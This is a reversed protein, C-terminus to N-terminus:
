AMSQYYLNQPHKAETFFHYREILLGFYQIVFAAMPLRTSELIYALVILIVPLVFVMLLFGYRLMLLFGESKGHFFERTNFSGGMFGQAKQHLDSHHVGIASKLDVKCRFRTNRYLSFGRTIAGLLTAVVAWTGYFSVLNNGLYASFAAALMFGSAVGLFLFNAVTLPSHWAKIFRLSAYIMATCLFLLFTAVTALAGIILTLDVPLTESIVFLPDTWGLYHFLGYLFTLAMAAPLVIVERSLWSTRWQTAARWAREPRGLHFVSAVLGGILLAIAALSGVAYFKDSQVPLLNALSYLQGTYLALFLGQGAGILTTLFIVSFAPHM